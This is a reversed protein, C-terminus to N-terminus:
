AGDASVRTETPASVVKGAHISERLRTRSLTGAAELIPYAISCIHSNIRKFDNIIDLHLSSTEITQLDQGALRQLHSAAFALGMERFEVKQALLQEASKPNGNLFVNLGLRLNSILRAHMECLEAMGAESFALRHAIM